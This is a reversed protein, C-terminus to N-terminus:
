HGRGISLAIPDHLQSHPAVSAVLVGPGSSDVRLTCADLLIWGSESVCFGSLGLSDASAVDFHTGNPSLRGKVGM